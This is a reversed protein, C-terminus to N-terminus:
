RVLFVRDISIGDILVPFFVTSNIRSGYSPIIAGVGLSGLNFQNLFTNNRYAKVIHNRIDHILYEFVGLEENFYAHLVRIGEGEITLSPAPYLQLEDVLPSASILMSTFLLHVLILFFLAPILGTRM